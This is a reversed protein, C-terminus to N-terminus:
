LGELFDENMRRSGSEARKGDAMAAFEKDPDKRRYIADADWPGPREGDEVRVLLYPALDTGVYTLEAHDEDLLRFRFIDPVAGPRPDDFSVEVTEAFELGAMSQVADVPGQVQAFATGDSRFSGPRLWTGRWESEVKKLDFRFIITDDIEYAWSGELGQAAAPTSLFLAVIALCLRQIM